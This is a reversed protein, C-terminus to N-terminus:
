RTHPVRQGSVAGQVNLQQGDQRAINIQLPPTKLRRIKALTEIGWVGICNMTIVM